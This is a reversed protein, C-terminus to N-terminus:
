IISIARELAYTREFGLDGGHKAARDSLYLMTSDFYILGVAAKPPIVILGSFNFFLEELHFKTNLRHTGISLMMMMATREDLDHDYNPERRSSVLTQQKTPTMTNAHENANAFSLAYIQRRKIRPPSSTMASMVQMHLILPQKRKKAPPHAEDYSSQPNPTVSWFMFPGSYIGRQRAQQERNLPGGIGENEAVTSGVDFWRGVIIGGGPLVVGEYGWASLEVDCEFNHWNRDSRGPRFIDFDPSQWEEPIADIEEETLYAKIMTFRMWGPVGYQLPLASIGGSAIFPLDNDRGSAVFPRVYPKEIHSINISPLRHYLIGPADEMPWKKHERDAWGPLQRRRMTAAGSSLRQAKVLREVEELGKVM